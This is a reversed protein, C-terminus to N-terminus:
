VGFWYSQCNILAIDDQRKRVHSVTCDLSCIFNVLLTENPSSMPATSPAAIACRSDTHIVEMMNCEDICGVVGSRM